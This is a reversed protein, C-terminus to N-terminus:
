EFTYDTDRRGWDPHSIWIENGTSFAIPEAPRFKGARVEQWCFVGERNTAAYALAYAKKSVHVDVRATTSVDISDALECVEDDTVITGLRNKIFNFFRKAVRKINPKITLWVVWPRRSAKLNEELGVIVRDDEYVLCHYAISKSLIITSDALTESPINEFANRISDVTAEDLPMGKTDLMHLVRSIAGDLVEKKQLELFDVFSINTTM